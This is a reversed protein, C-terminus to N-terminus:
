EDYVCYLYLWLQFRHSYKGDLIREVEKTHKRNLGLLLYEKGSLMDLSKVPYGIYQKHNQKTEVFGQFDIQCSSLFKAARRAYIGAGYIYLRGRGAHCFEDIRIKEKRIWEQYVEPPSLLIDLAEQDLDDLWAIDIGRKVLPRYYPLKEPMKQQLFRLGLISESIFHTSFQQRLIEYNRFTWILNGWFEISSLRSIEYDRHTISEGNMCYHYGYIPQFAVKRAHPFVMANFYLDECYDGTYSFVPAFDVFLRRAYLKDALNWIFKKGLVMEAMADMSDTWVVSTDAKYPYSYNGDMEEVMLGGISIDIDMDKHAPIMMREYFDSEVYDDSDMFTIYSGKSVRIGALRAGTPGSNEQHIVRVREDRRAYEDCIRGSGDTSGDDVLVVEYDEVTQALLSDVCRRLYKETNYVPVLISLEM